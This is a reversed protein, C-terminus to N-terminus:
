FHGSNFFRFFFNGSSIFQGWAHSISSKRDYLITSLPLILNYISPVVVKLTWVKSTHTVFNIIHGFTEFIKKYFIPYFINKIKIFNVFNSDQGQMTFIYTRKYKYHWKKFWSLHYGFIYNIVNKYWNHMYNVDFLINLYKFKTISM